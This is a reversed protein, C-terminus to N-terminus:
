SRGFMDIIYKTIETYSKQLMVNMMYIRSRVCHKLLVCVSCYVCNIVQNVKVRTVSTQRIFIRM